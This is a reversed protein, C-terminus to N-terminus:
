IDGYNLVRIMLNIADDFIGKSKGQNIVCPFNLLRGLSTFPIQLSKFVQRRKFPSFPDSPALRVTVNPSGRSVRRFNFIWIM